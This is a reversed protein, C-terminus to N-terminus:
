TTPAFRPWRQNSWRGTWGNRGTAPRARAASGPPSTTAAASGPGSALQKDTPFVSMDVGIEAIICEANRRQVGPITCLLEVAKEFPVIQEGISETLGAIQEDLFDLHALIAGIWVAHM